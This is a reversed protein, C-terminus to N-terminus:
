GEKGNIAIFNGQEDLDADYIAVGIYSIGDEYLHMIEVRLDPKLDALAAQAIELRKGIPLAPRTRKRGKPHLNGSNEAM